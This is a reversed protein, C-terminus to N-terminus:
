YATGTAFADIIVVFSECILCALALRVRYHQLPSWARLLACVLPAVEDKMFDMVLEESSTQYM